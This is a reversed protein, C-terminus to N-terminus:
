KRKNKFYRIVADEPTEPPDYSVVDVIGSFGRKLIIYCWSEMFVHDRNGAVCKRKTRDEPDEKDYVTFGCFLCSLLKGHELTKLKEELPMGGLWQELKKCRITKNRYEM